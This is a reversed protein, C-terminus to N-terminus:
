FCTCVPFVVVYKEAVRQVFFVFFFFFCLLFLAIQMRYAFVDLCNLLFAGVFCIFASFSVNENSLLMQSDFLYHRISVVFHVVLCLFALKLFVFPAFQFFLSANYFFFNIKGFLFFWNLFFANFFFFNSTCFFYFFFTFFVVLAGLAFFRNCVSVLSNPQTKYISLHPSLFFM